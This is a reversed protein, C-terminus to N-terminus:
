SAGHTAISIVFSTSGVDAKMILSSGQVFAFIAAAADDVLAREIAFGLDGLAQALAAGDEPRHARGLRYRLEEITEGAGEIKEEGVLSAAGYIEVLLGRVDGDIAQARPNTPGDIPVDTTDPEPTAADGADAMDGASSPSGPGGVVSPTGSGSTACGCAPALLLAVSLAVLRARLLGSRWKPASLTSRASECICRRELLIDAICAEGVERDTRRM